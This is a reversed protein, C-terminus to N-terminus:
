KKAFLHPYMYKLADKFDELAKFHMRGKKGHAHDNLSGIVGETFMPHGMLDPHSIAFHKDTDAIDFGLSRALKEFEKRSMEGPLKGTRMLELLKRTDRPLDNISLPEQVQPAAQEQPMFRKWADPESWDIDEYALDTQALRCGQRYAALRARHRVLLGDLADATAHNGHADARRIAVILTSLSM